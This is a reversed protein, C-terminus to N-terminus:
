LLPAFSHFFNYTSSPSAACKINKSIFFSVDIWRSIEEVNSKNIFFETLKTQIQDNTADNLFELKFDRVFSEVAAPLPAAPQQQKLQPPGWHQRFAVHGKSHYADCRNCGGSKKEQTYSDSESAKELVDYINNSQAGMPPAVGLKLKSGKGWTNFLNPSGLSMEEMQPPKSKLKDSQVSFHQQARHNRGTQIWGDDRVNNKSNYNCIDNPKERLSFLFEKNYVKKGDRNFPPWQGDEYKLNEANTEKAKVQVLPKNPSKDELSSALLKAQPAAWVKPPPKNKVLSELDVKENRSITKPVADKSSASFTTNENTDQAQIKPNVDHKQPMWNASRLDQLMLQVRSSVEITRRKVIDRMSKFIPELSVNENELDKGVTTLLKCLCELSEEDKKDLLMNMINVTSM